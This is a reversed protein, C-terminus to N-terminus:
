TLSRRWVRPSGHKLLFLLLSEGTAPFAMSRKNGTWNPGFLQPATIDHM